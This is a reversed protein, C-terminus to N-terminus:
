RSDDARERRRARIGRGVRVLEESMQNEGPNPEAASNGEVSQLGRMLRRARVAESLRDKATDSDARDKAPAVVPEERRGGKAMAWLVLASFLLALSGLGLTQMRSVGVQNVRSELLKDLETLIATNLKRAAERVEGAKLALTVMDVQNLDQLLTVPPVFEDVASRFTDLQTTIAPGLSSSSTADMAKRLGTAIGENERAVQYRAVGIRTEAQAREAPNTVSNALRALDSARGAFVTVESLRLVTADMLYYSDLVPDLVLNSSDAIKNILDVVLQVVDTYARYAPEGSPRQNILTNIRGRLDTWRQGSGLADGYKKEVADVASIGQQLGSSDAVGGEVTTSQADVMKDLIETLPQLYAIGQREAQAFNLDKTSAIWSQVLAVSFLVAVIVPLGILGLTRPSWRRPNVTQAQKVM